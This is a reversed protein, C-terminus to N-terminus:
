NIEEIVLYKTSNDKNHKIMYLKNEEIKNNSFHIRQQKFFVDDIKHVYVHTYGNLYQIISSHGKSLIFDDYLKNQKSYRMLGYYVFDIIEACSFAGGGHLATVKQSIDLIRKRYLNCRNKSEKINFKENVKINKNM